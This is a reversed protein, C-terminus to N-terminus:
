SVVQGVLSNLDQRVLEISRSADVTQLKCSDDYYKLVPETSEKYVNLRNEVVEIKDDERQYLNEGCSDCIKEKAPPAFLEHYPKQCGRCILRGTLREVLKEFGVDFFVVKDVGKHDLRGDLEEAQMITRPFGDLVFGSHNKSDNIWEMMMNVTVNDPVYEGREMYGKALIGLETGSALNERFLDGTSISNVDLLDAIYSAQTGKGSGPPGM